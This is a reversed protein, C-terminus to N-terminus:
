YRRFLETDLFLFCLKAGHDYFNSTKINTHDSHHPAKTIQKHAEINPQLQVIGNSTHSSQNGSDNRLMKFASNIGMQWKGTNNPSKVNISGHM